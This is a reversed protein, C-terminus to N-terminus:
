FDEQQTLIKTLKDFSHKVTVLVTKSYASKVEPIRISQIEKALIIFKESDSARNAKEKQQNKERVAQREKEEKLFLEHEAAEKKKRETDLKADTEKKIKAERDTQEQREKQQQKERTRREERLANEKKEAEKKLRVNEEYIQKQYAQEKQEKKVRLEEEKKEEEIQIAKQRNEEQIEVFREQRELHEELPIILAKLINAIGDIAKGERLSEAKLKKRADETALRKRKLFLRGKKAKKMLNIQTADTVIIATAEQEWKDAAEFYEQFNDLLYKAKTPNLGSKNVIEILQNSQIEDEFDICQPDINKM